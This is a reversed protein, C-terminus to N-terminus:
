LFKLNKFFHYNDSDFIATKPLKFNSFSAHIGLLTFYFSNLYRVSCLQEKLMRRTEDVNRNM